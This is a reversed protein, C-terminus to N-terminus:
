LSDYPSSFNKTALSDPNNFQIQCWIIWVINVLPSWFLGLGLGLAKPHTPENYLGCKKWKKYKRQQLGLRPNVVLALAQLAQPGFMFGLLWMEHERFHLLTHPFSGGCEWTLEWKPLQLGLPSGFRWLTITPTLIWQISFNRIDNCLEQFM